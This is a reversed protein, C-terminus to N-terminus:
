LARLPDATRSEMMTWIGNKIHEIFHPAERHTEFAAEDAYEELLLFRRPKETSQFVRYSRNGPEQLTAQMCAAFHEAARTESGPQIVYTVTMAFM